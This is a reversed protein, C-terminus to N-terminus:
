VYWERVPKSGNAKRFIASRDGNQPLPGGPMGGPPIGMNPGGPGPPCNNNFVGNNAPPPGRLMPGGLGPRGPMGGPPPRPGGGPPMNPGGPGSIPGRPGGAGPPINPGGRAMGGSQPGGPPGSHPAVSAEMLSTTATEQEGAVEGYDNPPAFQYRPASPGAEECKINGDVRVRIKLVIIVILIMAVFAGLIIGIVLVMTGPMSKTVHPPLEEEEEEQREDEMNWKEDFAEEYTKHQSGGGGGDVKDDPSPLPMLTPPVYPDQDPYSRTTDPYLLIAWDSTTRTHGGGGWPTATTQLPVYGGLFLFVIM